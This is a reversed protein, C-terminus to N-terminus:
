INWNLAKAAEAEPLCLEARDRRQTREESKLHCSQKSSPDLFDNIKLNGLGKKHLVLIIVGSNKIHWLQLQLRVFKRPGINVLVQNWYINVNILLISQMWTIILISYNFLHNVSPCLWIKWHQLLYKSVLLLTISPYNMHYYILILYMPM